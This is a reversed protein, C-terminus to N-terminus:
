YILQLLKLARCLLCCAIALKMRSGSSRSMQGIQLVTKLSGQCVEQPCLNQLNHKSDSRLSVLIRHGTSPCWIERSSENRSLHQSLSTSSRRHRQWYWPLFQLQIPSNRFKWAWSALQWYPLACHGAQPSVMSRLFSSSCANFSQLLLATIHVYQPPVTSWLLMFSWKSKQRFNGSVQGKSQPFSAIGRSMNSSWKVMSHGWASINHGNEM